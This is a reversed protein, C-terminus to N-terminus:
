NRIITYDLSTHEVILDKHDYLWNRLILEATGLRDRNSIEIVHNHCDCYIEVGLRNMISFNDKTWAREGIHQPNPGKRLFIIPKDQNNNLIELEKLDIINNFRLETRTRIIIDYNINNEVEYKKRLENCKYIKYFMGLLNPRTAVDYKKLRPWGLKEIMEDDWIDVEHVVPKFVDVFKQTDQDQWTSLFINYAHGNNSLVDLISEKLWKYSNDINRPLGSIEISINMIKRFWYCIMLKVM